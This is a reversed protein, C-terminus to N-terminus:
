YTFWQPGATPFAQVFCKSMTTTVVILMGLLNVRETKDEAAGEEAAAATEIIIIQYGEAEVVMM